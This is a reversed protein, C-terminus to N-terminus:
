LNICSHFGCYMETHVKGGEHLHLLSELDPARQSARLATLICKQKPSLLSLDPLQWTQVKGLSCTIWPRLSLHLPSIALCTRSMSRQSEATTQLDSPQDEGKRNTNILM